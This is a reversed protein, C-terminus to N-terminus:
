QRFRTRNAAQIMPLAKAINGSTASNAQSIEAASRHVEQKLHEIEHLVPHDAHHGLLMAKFEMMKARMALTHHEQETVPHVYSVGHDELANESYTFQSIGAAAREKLEQVDAELDDRNQLLQKKIDGFKKANPNFTEALLEQQVHAQQIKKDTEEVMREKRYIIEGLELLAARFVEVHEKHTELKVERLLKERQNLDDRLTGFTNDILERMAEVSALMIDMNKVTRELPVLHTDVVNCFRSFEARRHEDKDKESLRKLLEKHRERELVEAERELEEIKAFVVQLRQQNDTLYKDSTEREKLVKTATAAEVEEVKERLAFMKKVDDLCRGRLKSCKTQLKNLEDATKGHYQDSVNRVVITENIAQDLGEAKAVVENLTHELTEIINYCLKEAIHVEGDSVAADRRTRLDEVSFTNREIVAEKDKVLDELTILQCVNELQVLMTDTIRALTTSDMNGEALNESILHLRRLAQEHNLRFPAFQITTGHSKEIRQLHTSIQDLALRQSPKDELLETPQLAMNCDRILQQVDYKSKLKWDVTTEIADLVQACHARLKTIDSQRDRRGGIWAALVEELKNHSRQIDQQQKLFQFYEASAADAPPVGPPSGPKKNSAAAITRIANLSSGTTATKASENVNPQDDIASVDVQSIHVASTDNTNRSANLLPSAGRSSSAVGTTDSQRTAASKNFATFNSGGSFYFKRLAEKDVSASM